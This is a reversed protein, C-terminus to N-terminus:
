QKSPLNALVYQNAQNISDLADGYNHAEGGDPYGWADTGKAIQDETGNYLNDLLSDLGWNLGENDWWTWWSLGVWPLSGNPYAYSIYQTTISNYNQGRALQTAFGFADSSPNANYYDSDPNSFRFEVSFIPHDGYYTYLYNLEAQSEGTNASVTLEIADLTGNAAQLVEKPPMGSWTGLSTPGFFLLNAYKAHLHTRFNSFYYYAINYTLTNLDGVLTPNTSSLAPSWDIGTWSQHSVRADEDMLGSGSGWGGYIYNVTIAAGSAPANGAAFKVSIAGTSWNISCGTNDIHPGYFWVGGYGRSSNNAYQGIDGAVVTGGVLIQITNYTPLNALTKSFTLTSGDGTGLAEGTTQTGTSDFTTYNSGWA